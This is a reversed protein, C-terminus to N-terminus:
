KMPNLDYERFSMLGLDRESHITNEINVPWKIGIDKDDYRIGSDTLKDYAGECMYIMTTYDELALFGHAFGKPIYIANHEKYSLELSIWKKYTKSEPRLNVIVDWAKGSAVCVIQAQPNSLQFHLGRLVNKASVSIFMETLQFSIGNNLYINSEYYKNFGGRSDGSSFAEIVYAGDLVTEKFEFAM